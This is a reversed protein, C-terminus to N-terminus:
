EEYASRGLPKDKKLEELINPTAHGQPATPTPTPTESNNPNSAVTRQYRSLARPASTENDISQRSALLLQERIVPGAAEIQAPSLGIAELTAKITNVVLFGLKEQLAQQRGRLGLDLSAKSIRILRDREDGYYKLLVMTRPDIPDIEDEPDLEGAIQLSTARRVIADDYFSVAANARALEQILADIPDIASMERGFHRRLGVQAEVEAAAINARKTNGGHHKCEGFGEHETGFGAPMQCLEGNSRAANCKGEPLAETRSRTSSATRRRRTPPKARKAAKQRATEEDFREKERAARSKRKRTPSEPVNASGPTDPSKIKSPRQIEAM